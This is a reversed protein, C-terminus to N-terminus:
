FYGFEENFCGLKFEWKHCLFVNKNAHDGGCTQHVGSQVLKICVAPGHAFGCSRDCQPPNKLIHDVADEGAIMPIAFEEFLTHVIIIIFSKRM